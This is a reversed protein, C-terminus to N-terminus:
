DGFRVGLDALANEYDSVDADEDIPEPLEVMEWEHNEARLKYCYGIPAVPKSQIKLVLDNYELETINGGDGSSEQVGIIYGNDIHKYYAM